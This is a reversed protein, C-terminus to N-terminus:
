TGKKKRSPREWNCRHVWTDVLTNLTDIHSQIAKRTTLNGNSVLLYTGRVSHELCNGVAEGLQGSRAASSLSELQKIHVTTLLAM